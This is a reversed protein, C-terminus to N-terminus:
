VLFYTETWCVDQDSARILIGRRETGFALLVIICGSGLIRRDCGDVERVIIGYDWGARHLILSRSGAPPHKSHVATPPHWALSYGPALIPLQLLSIRPM